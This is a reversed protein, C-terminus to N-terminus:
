RNRLHDALFSKVCGVDTFMNVCFVIKCFLFPRQTSFGKQGAVASSNKIKERKQRRGFTGTKVVNM